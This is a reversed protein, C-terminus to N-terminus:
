DEKSLVQLSGTYDGRDFEKAFEDITVGKREAGKEVEELGIEAIVRKLIENRRLNEYAEKAPIVQLFEKAREDDIGAKKLREIVIRRELDKEM